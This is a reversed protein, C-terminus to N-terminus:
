QIGRVISTHDCRNRQSWVEQRAGVLLKHDCQAWRSLRLYDGWRLVRLRIVVALGWEKGHSTVHECPGNLYSKPM